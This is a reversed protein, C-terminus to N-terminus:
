VEGSGGAAEEVPVLWLVGLPPLTLEVSCPQGQWVIEDAMLIEPNSVGSGGFEIADTNLVQEWKGKEPLGVRYNSRVVPSFNAVCVLRREDDQSRRMFSLVNADADYFDIWGFGDPSYDASWLAPEARYLQNLVRVLTQAGAHEPYQLLHWDLSREHSWEASQGFEGGMFLLQKGPHAWMWALLARLNAAKQWRDGPMKDLLSGKGHVVEDHSLPLVFNESFAYILGFTLEHQHYRRYVPDKGFYELTDHMWGMNWKMGFGLGGTDTPRSVGGWATSEEAIMVVGPHAARVVDNLDRLFAVAELNERGGSENPVWEGEGRAYDLYLMSAVADVRLGDVHFQDIWYNANSILFSRVEHRGVNFILTGWEPHAGKRPDDHEYLATGDFRALGWDDRPFHAPVWDVLVGIGRQHFADVLARFDDPTGLRGTPAFYSTVQYGWSGGFPHEAVPMLEVHTFGMEEVYAPLQEALERYTLPRDDEEPCRRWSGLHVEYISVPSRDWDTNTRRELWADDGWEHDSGTVISAAGPPLEAEFAVPDAKLVRDVEHTLIEFKYRSGPAVWPIFLEWVGSSGLRRMPHVRGDWRNFDGMVRVSRANPAWVAFSTGEVGFHRRHHAGLARSLDFHRGQGLLHLDFDSVTPPFRYPDEFTESVVAAGHYNAQILYREAAAAPAMAGFLGDKTLRRMEIEDGGALLWVSAADPRYARVILHGGIEHLGLLHHPDDHEGAVLAAVEDPHAELTVIERIESLQPDNTTALTM